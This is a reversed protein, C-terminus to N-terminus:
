RSMRLSATTATAFFQQWRAHLNRTASTSAQNISQITTHVLVMMPTLMNLILRIIMAVPNSTSTTITTTNTTITTISIITTIINAIITATSNINTTTSNTIMIIVKANLILSKSKRRLVTGRVDKM